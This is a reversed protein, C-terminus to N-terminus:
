GSRDSGMHSVAQLFRICRLELSTPLGTCNTIQSVVLAARSTATLESTCLERFDRLQQARSIPTCNLPRLPDCDGRHWRIRSTGLVLNRSRIKTLRYRLHSHCGMVVRNGAEPVSLTSRDAIVKPLSKSSVSCLCHHCWCVGSARM